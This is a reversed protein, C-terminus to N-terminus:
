WGYADKDLNEEAVTYARQEWDGMYRWNDAFVASSFYDENKESVPTPELGRKVGSAYTV